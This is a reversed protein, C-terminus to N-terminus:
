STLQQRYQPVGALGNAALDVLIPLYADDRLGTYLVENISLVTLVCGDGKKRQAAHYDNINSM